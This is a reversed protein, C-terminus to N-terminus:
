SAKQILLVIVQSRHGSFSVQRLNNNNGSINEGIICVNESEFSKLHWFFSM